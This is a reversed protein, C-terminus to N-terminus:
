LFDITILIAAFVKRVSLDDSVSTREDTATWKILFERWLSKRISCSLVSTEINIAPYMGKFRIKSSNKSPQQGYVQSSTSAVGGEWFVQGSSSSFTWFTSEAFTPVFSTLLSVAELSLWLSFDAMVFTTRMVSESYRDVHMRSSLSWTDELLLFDELPLFNTFIFCKRFSAAM